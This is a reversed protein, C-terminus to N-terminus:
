LHPGAEAELLPTGVRRTLSLSRDLTKRENDKDRLKRYISSIDFLTFLERNYDGVRAFLRVAEENKRIAQRQSAETEQLLLGRADAQATEAQRTANLKAQDEPRQVCARQIRLKLQEAQNNFDRQRNRDQLVGYIQSIAYLASVEGNLDGAAQWRSRAQEYSHLANHYDTLSRYADGISSLTAAERPLDKLDQWLQLARAYHELATQTTKLFFCVRGMNFFTWAEGYQDGAEQWSKLSRTYIELATQREGQSEYTRAINDLSEAEGRRNGLSKWTQLALEFHQRAKLHNRKSLVEILGIVNLTDAESARDGIDRWIELAEEYKTVAEGVSEPNGQSRLQEAERFVNEAPVRSRDQFTATREESIQVEYYAAIQDASTSSVELKYLGASEAVWSITEPGYAGIMRNSQAAIKGDPQYLKVSVDIGLQNVVIRSYQGTLFMIRFYQSECGSIKRKIPRSADLLQVDREDVSQSRALGLSLLALILPLASFSRLSFTTPFFWRM